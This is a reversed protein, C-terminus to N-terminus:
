SANILQIHFSRLQCLCCNNCSLQVGIINEDGGIYTFFICCVISYQMQLTVCLWGNHRHCVTLYRLRFDVGFIPASISGSKQVTQWAFKSRFDARFSPASFPRRNSCQETGLWYDAHFEVHSQDITMTSMKMQKWASKHWPFQDCLFVTILM